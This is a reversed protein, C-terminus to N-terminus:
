IDRLIDRTNHKQIAAKHRHIQIYIGSTKYIIEKGYKEVYNYQLQISIEICISKLSEASNFM